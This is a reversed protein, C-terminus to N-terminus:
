CLCCVPYSPYCHHRPYSCQVHHVVYTWCCIRAASWLVCQCSRVCGRKYCCVADPRASIFEAMKNTGSLLRTDLTDSASSFDLLVLAAEKKKDLATLIDNQVRLLALETSHGCRYASQMPSHDVSM